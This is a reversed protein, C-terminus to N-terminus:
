GLGVVFENRFWDQLFLKSSIDNQPWRFLQHGVQKVVAFDQKVVTNSNYNITTWLESIMINNSLNSYRMKGRIIKQKIMFFLVGRCGRQGPSPTCLGGGGRCGGLLDMGTNSLWLTWKLTYNLVLYTTSAVDSPMAAIINFSSKLFLM